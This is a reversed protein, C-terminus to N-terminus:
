PGHQSGEQKEAAPVEVGSAHVLQRLVKVRAGGSAWHWEEFSCM